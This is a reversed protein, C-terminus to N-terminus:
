SKAKYFDLDEENLFIDKGIHNCFLHLKSGRKRILEYEGFYEIWNERYYLYITEGIKM